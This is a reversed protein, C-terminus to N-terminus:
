EVQRRIPEVRPGDLATLAAVRLAVARVPLAIERDAHEARERRQHAQAHQQRKQRQVDLLEADTRRSRHDLPGPDREAGGEEAGGDRRRQPPTEGIPISALRHKHSRGNAHRQHHRQDAHRVAHGFEDHQTEHGPEDAAIRRRGDDHDAGLRRAFSGAPCKAHQGDARQRAIQDPREDAAEQRPPNANAAREEHASRHDGHGRHRGHHEHTFVEVTGDVGLAPEGRFCRRAHVHMARHDRCQEDRRHHHQEGIHGDLRDNGHVDALQAHRVRVKCAGGPM